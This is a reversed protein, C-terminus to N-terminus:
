YNLDSAVRGLVWCGGSPEFGGTVGTKPFGIGKEPRM